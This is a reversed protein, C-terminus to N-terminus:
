VSFLGKHLQSLKNEWRFHVSWLSGNRIMYIIIVTDLSWIPEWWRQCYVNNDETTRVLKLGKTDVPLHCFFLRETHQCMLSTLLRQLETWLFSTEWWQQGKKGDGLTPCMQQGHRWLHHTHRMYRAKLAMSLTHRSSPKTCPQLCHAPGHAHSPSVLKTELFDCVESCCLRVTQSWTVHM